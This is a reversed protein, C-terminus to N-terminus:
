VNEGTRSASPPAGENLIGLREPHHRRLWRLRDDRLKAKCRVVGAPSVRATQPTLVIGCHGCIGGLTPPPTRVPPPTGTESM